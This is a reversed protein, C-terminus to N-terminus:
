ALPLGIVFTAGGGTNSASIRGQHAEIISRAISLGLGIGDSKSTVFADFVRPLIEPAVGPGNDHVSIEAGDDVRRIRVIVERHGHVEDMAEMANMVLNLIVHQLSVRDALLTPLKEGAEVRLHVRRRAADAAVLRAVSNVVEDLDVPQREMPRKRALGRLRDIIEAASASAQQIDSLIDGLEHGDGNTLRAVQRSAVEANATIAVLPQQIEHVISATLEGVLALRGAHALELRALALQKEAHKLATVDRCTCLVTGGRIAVRKLHILITRHAGGKAIVEREVNQIEGRADLDAPDFLDGGLFTALSGTARVEDPTFGFINDVNPCVYTFEGADNAMFVADSISSLTARHLEESDRLAEFSQQRGGNNPGGM